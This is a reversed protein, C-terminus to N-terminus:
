SSRAIEPLLTEIWELFEVAEPAKLVMRDKFIDMGLGMPKGPPDQWALWTHVKAKSRHIKKYRKLGKSELDLLVREAEQLLLDNESILRLFFDELMRGSRNNPMIWAGLTPLGDRKPNALFGDRPLTEPFDYSQATPGLANRFTKLINSWTSQADEDADSIIAIVDYAKTNKLSLALGELMESFNGNGGAIRCAREFWQDNKGSARLLAKVVGRDDAGEVFFIQKRDDM